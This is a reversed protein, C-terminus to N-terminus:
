LRGLNPPTTEPLLDAEELREETELACPTTALRRDFDEFTGIRVRADMSIQARERETATAYFYFNRFKDRRLNVLIRNRELDSKPTDRCFLQEEKMDLAFDHLQQGETCLTNIIRNHDKISHIALAVATLVVSACISGLLMVFNGILLAVAIQIPGIIATLTWCRVMRKSVEEREAEVQALRFGLAVETVEAWNQNERLTKRVSARYEPDAPELHEAEM